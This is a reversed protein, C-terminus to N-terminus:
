KKTLKSLREFLSDVGEILDFRLKRYFDKMIKPDEKGGPHKVRSFLDNRLKVADSVIEAVEDSKEGAQVSMVTFCDSIVEYILYDIDKKLDKISAM